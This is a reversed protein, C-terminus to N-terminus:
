PVQPVFLSDVQEVGETVTWERFRVVGPHFEALGQVAPVVEVARATTGSVNGATLDATLRVRGPEASDPPTVTYTASRERGRRLDGPLGDGSVTWGDPASLTAKASRLNRNGGNRAHVTVEFPDGATVRFRELELYLESGLPLGGAPP